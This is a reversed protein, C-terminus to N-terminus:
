PKYGYRQLNSLTVPGVVGDRAIGVRKQFEKVVSETKPGFDADEDLRSYSRFVKNMFQQLKLVNAGVSGRQAYVGVPVAPPSPVHTGGIKAIIRAYRPDGERWGMQYHMEDARNWNRGWFVAGEYFALLNNVRNIRDTPMTRYGWPYKPANVDIATGALHNSNKVANTASWGWVPSNVPEVQVHYRRVFDGLITAPVGKRLPATDMHPGPVLVCEDRNCMRWQNESWSYGYVTRFSM